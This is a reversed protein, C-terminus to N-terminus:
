FCSCPHLRWRRTQNPMGRWFIIQRKPFAQADARSPTTVLSCPAPNICSTGSLLVNIIDSPITCPMTLTLQQVPAHRHVCRSTIAVTTPFSAACTGGTNFVSCQERQGGSEKVRNSGTYMVAIQYLLQGPTYAGDRWRKTACDVDSM